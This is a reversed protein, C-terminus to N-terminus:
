TGTQCCTQLARDPLQDKFPPALTDTQCRIQLPVDEIGKQCSTQLPPAESLSDWDSESDSNRRELMARFATRFCTCINLPWTIEDTHRDASESVLPVLLRANEKQKPLIWSIFYCNPRCCFSIMLEKTAKGQTKTLLTRVIRKQHKWGFTLWM